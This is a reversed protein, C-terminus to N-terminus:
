ISLFRTRFAIADGGRTAGIVAFDYFPFGAACIGGRENGFVADRVVFFGLPSV